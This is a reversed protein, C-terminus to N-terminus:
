FDKNAAYIQVAVSDWKRERLNEETMTFAAWSGSPGHPAIQLLLVSDKDSLDGVPSDFHFGHIESWADVAEESVVPYGLMMPTDAPPCPFLKGINNVYEYEAEVDDNEDFREAMPHEPSFDTEQWDSWEPPLLESGEIWPRMTLADRAPALATSYYTVPNVRTHGHNQFRKLVTRDYAAKSASDVPAGPWHPRIGEHPLISYYRVLCVAEDEDGRDFDRDLFFYLVGSTPLLGEPILSCSAHVQSLNVQAVFEWVNSPPFTKANLGEEDHWPWDPLGGVKTPPFVECDGPAPDRCMPTPGKLRLNRELTEVRDKLRVFETRTKVVAPDTTFKERASLQRTLKKKLKRREVLLKKLGLVDSLRHMDSWADDFGRSRSSESPVCPFATPPLPEILRASGAPMKGVKVCLRIWSWPVVAVGDRMGLKVYPALPCSTAHAKAAALAVAPGLCLTPRCILKAADFCKDAVILHTVRSADYAGVIVEGGHRIADRIAEHHADTRQMEVFFVMGEFMRHPLTGDFVFRPETACAHFRACVRNCLAYVALDKGPYASPKTGSGKASEAIVQGFVNRKPAPSPDAGLAQAAALMHKAQAADLMHKQPKRLSRRQPMLHQQKRHEDLQKQQLFVKHESATRRPRGSGNEVEDAFDFPSTEPKLLAAAVFVDGARDARREFKERLAEGNRELEDVLADRERMLEVNREVDATFKPRVKELEERVKELGEPIVPSPEPPPEPPPPFAVSARLTSPRWTVREPLAHEDFHAVNSADIVYKAVHEARLLAHVDGLTLRHLGTRPYPTPTELRKAPDSVGRWAKAWDRWKPAAVGDLLRTVVYPDNVDDRYGRSVCALRGLAKLSGRYPDFDPDTEPLFSTSDAVVRAALARVVLERVIPLDAVGEPPPIDPPPRVIRRSIAGFLSSMFCGFDLGEDLGERGLPGLPYPGLFFGGAVVEHGPPVGGRTVETSIEGDVGRTVCVTLEMTRVRTPRRADPTARARADTPAHPTSEGKM